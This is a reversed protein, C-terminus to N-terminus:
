CFFLDFLQFGQIGIYTYAIEFKEGPLWFFIWFKKHCKWNQKKKWLQFAGRIERQRLTFM